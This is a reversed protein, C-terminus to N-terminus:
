FFKEEKKRKEEDGVNSEGRREGEILIGASYKLRRKKGFSELNVSVLSNEERLYERMM